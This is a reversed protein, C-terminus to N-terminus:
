YSGSSKGDESSKKSMYEKIVAQLDDIKKLLRQNEEKLSEYEQKKKERSLKQKEKIKDKNKSRYEKLYDLAKEKNDQYYEKSKKLCKERNRSYYTDKKM